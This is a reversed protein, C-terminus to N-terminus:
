FFNVKSQDIYYYNFGEFSCEESAESNLPASMGKKDISITWCYIKRNDQFIEVLSLNNDGLFKKALKILITFPLFPSNKGYIQFSVLFHDGYDAKNYHIFVIYGDVVIETTKLLVLDNELIPDALPFNYPILIDGFSKITESLKDIKEIYM